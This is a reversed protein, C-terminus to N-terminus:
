FREFDKFQYLIKIIHKGDKEYEDMICTRSMDRRFVAVRQFVPQPQEKGEPIWNAPIKDFDMPINLEPYLDRIRMEKRFGDFDLVAIYEKNVM